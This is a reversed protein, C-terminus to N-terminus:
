LFFILGAATSFTHYTYNGSFNTQSGGIARPVGLYRIVCFGPMGAGGPGSGSIVTGIGLSGGQGKAGGNGCGVCASFSPHSSLMGAYWASASGVPATAITNNGSLGGNSGNFFLPAPVNVSLAFNMGGSSGVCGTNSAPATGGNGGNMGGGGVAVAATVARLGNDLEAM